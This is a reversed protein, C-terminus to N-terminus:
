QYYAYGIAFGYELLTGVNFKANSSNSRWSCETREQKKPTHIGLGMLGSSQSFCEQHFIEILHTFDM